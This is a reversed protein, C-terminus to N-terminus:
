DSAINFCSDIQKMFPKPYTLSQSEQCQVIYDVASISSSVLRCQLCLLKVYQKPVRKNIRIESEHLCNKQLKSTIPAQEQKGSSSHRRKRKGIQYFLPLLRNLPLIVQLKSCGFWKFSRNKRAEPM